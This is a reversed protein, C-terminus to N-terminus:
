RPKQFSRGYINFDLNDFDNLTLVEYGGRKEDVHYSQFISCRSWNKSNLKPAIFSYGPFGLDLLKVCNNFFLQPNDSYCYIKRKSGPYYQSKDESLFQCAVLSCLLTKGSKRGMKMKGFTDLNVRLAEKQFDKLIIGKEKAFLIVKESHTLLESPILETKEQNENEAQSFPSAIVSIGAILSSKLLTRKNM